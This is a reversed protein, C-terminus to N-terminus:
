SQLFRKRISPLSEIKGLSHLEGNTGRSKQVKALIKQKLEENMTKMGKREVGYKEELDKLKRWKKPGLEGKSERNLLNIDHRLRKIDGEIRRKWRPEKRLSIEFRKLGMQEAVWVSAVNIVDNKKTINNTKIFRIASNVRETQIRLSKKGM